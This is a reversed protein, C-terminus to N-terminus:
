PSVMKDYYIRIINQLNKKRSKILIDKQM